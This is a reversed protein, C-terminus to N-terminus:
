IYFEPALLNVVGDDSLIISVLEADTICSHIFSHIFSHAMPATISVPSLCLLLVSVYGLAVRKVVFRVYVPRPNFEPRRSSLGAVLRQATTRCTIVETLVSVQGRSLSFHKIRPLSLSNKGQALAGTTPGQWRRIWHILHTSWPALWTRRIYYRTLFPWLQVTFGMGNWPKTRWSVCSLNHIKTIIAYVVPM